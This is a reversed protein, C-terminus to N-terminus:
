TLVEKFDYFATPSQGVGRLVKLANGEFEWLPRQGKVWSGAVCLTGPFIFRITQSVFRVDLVRIFDGLRM